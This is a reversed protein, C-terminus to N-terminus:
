GISRIFLYSSSIFRCNVLTEKEDSYLNYKTKKIQQNKLSKEFEKNKFEYINKVQEKHVVIKNKEKVEEIYKDIFANQADFIHIEKERL